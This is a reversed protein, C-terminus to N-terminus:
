ATSPSTKPISKIHLYYSSLFVLNHRSDQCPFDIIRECYGYLTTHIVYKSFSYQALNHKTSTCTCSVQMLALPLVVYNQTKRLVQTTDTEKHQCRLYKVLTNEKIESLTLSTIPLFILIETLFFTFSSVLPSLTSLLINTLVVSHSWNRILLLLWSRKLLHSDKEPLIRQARHTGDSVGTM